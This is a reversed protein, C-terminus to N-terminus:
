SIQGGLGALTADFGPFSDVICAVDQVVTEGTAILGAVVLAMVDDGVGLDKGEAIEVQIHGADALEAADVQAPVCLVAADCAALIPLAGYWEPSLILVADVDPDSGPKYLTAALLESLSLGLLEWAGFHPAM